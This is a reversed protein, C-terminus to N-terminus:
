ATPGLFGWNILGASQLLVVAVAAALVLLLTTTAAVKWGSRAPGRARQRAKRREARPAVGPAGAGAGAEAEAVATTATPAPAPAPPPAADGLERPISTGATVERLVTGLEAATWGKILLPTVAGDGRLTLVVDGLREQIEWRSVRNWAMQQAAHGPRRIEIGDQSLAVDFLDAKRRRQRTLISVGTITTTTTATV